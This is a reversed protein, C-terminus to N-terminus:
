RYARDMGEAVASLEDRLHRVSSALREQNAADTSASLSVLNARVTDLEVVIREMESDFRELQAAIRRQVSLQETLASALELDGAVENRRQEIQEVPNEALTEHLMQARRASEMLLDMLRDVEQSVERFPLQARHVAVAINAQIRQAAEVHRAIQPAFQQRQQAPAPQRTPKTSVVHTKVFLDHLARNEREGLPWLSDVITFLGLTVLKGLVFKVGVERAFTLGFGVPRGDDRVVRIDMAQKGYTQGNHEGSRCMTLCFYASCAVFASILWVAAGLDDDGGALAGVNAGMLLTAFTIVTVVVMDLLTAGVRPWWAAL